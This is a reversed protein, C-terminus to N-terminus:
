LQENSLIERKIASVCICLNDSLFSSFCCNSSHLQNKKERRRFPSTFELGGKGFNKQIICVALEATQRHFCVWELSQLVSERLLLFAENCCQLFKAKALDPELDM